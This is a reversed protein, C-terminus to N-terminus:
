RDRERARKRLRAREPENVDILVDPYVPLNSLNLSSILNRHTCGEFGNVLCPIFYPLTPYRQLANPLPLPVPLNLVTAQKGTKFLGGPRLEIEHHSPVHLVGFKACFRESRPETNFHCPMVCRTRASTCVNDGVRHFVHREDFTM